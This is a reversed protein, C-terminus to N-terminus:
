KADILFDTILTKNREILVLRLRWEGKMTPVVSDFKWNCNSTQSYNPNYETGHGHAPMDFIIKNISPCTDGSKYASPISVLCSFVKGVNIANNCKLELDWKKDSSTSKMIFNNAWSISPLFTQVLALLIIFKFSLTRKKM